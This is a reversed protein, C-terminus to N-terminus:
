DHSLMAEFETMRTEFDREMVRMLIRSLFGSVTAVATMPVGVPNPTLLGHAFLHRITSALYFLNCVRGRLHLDLQRQHTSNVHPRMMAFFERQGNLARLQRLVRDPEDNSLLQSTQRMAVGISKLFHEFASFTLLLQCLSSYGRATGATLGEFEVYRFCRAARYRAAFRNVEGPTGAFGLIRTGLAAVHADFIAWLPPYDAFPDTVIRPV